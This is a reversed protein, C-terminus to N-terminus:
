ALSREFSTLALTLTFRYKYLLWRENQWGPNITRGPGKLPNTTGTQAEINRLFKVLPEMEKETFPVREGCLFGHIPGKRRAGPRHGFCDSEEISKGVVIAGHGKLIVARNPGILDAIEETVDLNDLFSVERTCLLLNM